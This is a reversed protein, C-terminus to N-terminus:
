LTSFCYFLVFFGSIHALDMASLLHIILLYSKSNFFPNTNKELLEYRPPRKSCVAVGEYELEAPVISLLILSPLELSLTIDNQYIAFNFSAPATVSKEAKMKPKKM